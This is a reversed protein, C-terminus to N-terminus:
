FAGVANGRGTESDGSEALARSEEVLRELPARGFRLFLAPTLFSDLLTATVLGGFITVAV